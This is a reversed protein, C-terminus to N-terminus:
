LGEKATALWAKALTAGKETSPFAPDKQEAITTAAMYAETAKDCAAQAKAGWATTPVKLNM